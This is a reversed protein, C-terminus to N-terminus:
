DSCCFVSSSGWCGDSWLLGVQQGHLAFLRQQQAEWEKQAQNAREVQEKYAADAALKDWDAIRM